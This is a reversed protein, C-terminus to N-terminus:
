NRPKKDEDTTRVYTTGGARPILSILTRLSASDSFTVNRSTLYAKLKTRATELKTELLEIKHNIKPM